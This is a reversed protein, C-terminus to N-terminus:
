VRHLMSDKAELRAFKRVTTLISKAKRSVKEHDILFKLFSHRILAKDLQNIIVAM